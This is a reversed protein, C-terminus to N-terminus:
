PTPVYCTGLDEPFDDTSTYADLDKRYHLLAYKEIGIAILIGSQTSLLLSWIPGPDMYQAFVLTNRDICERAEPHWVVRWGLAKVIRVDGPTLRPEQLIVPVKTSEGRTKVIQDAVSLIFAVELMWTEPGEFLSGPALFVIKDIRVEKLARAVAKRHPARHPALADCSRFLERRKQIGAHIVEPIQFDADSTEEEYDAMGVSAAYARKQADSEERNWPKNEEKLHEEYAAYEEEEDSEVKHNRQAARAQLKSRGLRRQEWYIEEDHYKDLDSWERWDEDGYFIKAAEFDDDDYSHTLDDSIVSEDSDSAEVDGDKEELSVPELDEINIVISM